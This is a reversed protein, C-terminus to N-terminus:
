KSALRLSQVVAAPQVAVPPPPQRWFRLAKGASTKPDLLYYLGTWLAYRALRLRSMPYGVSELKKRHFDWFERDRGKFVQWGLHWYYDHLNQHLQSKLEEKSLFKPGFEILQALLWPLVTQRRESMRTLSDEQVGQHTLIQHVFGFDHGEMIELCTEADAHLNSEDFFEDRSRVIDSRFLVSTPTGFVYPRGMLRYRAMDRGRVVPSPYPLGQWLVEDRRLGYAGVVGVSPNDEALRVMLELCEPLLLDDAAVVKCYKSEPSIQRFANNHNAIVRVFSRNTVVSRIRSDKAAYEQAIELTRDTSCNNVITYDWNSYTQALVSEICNRLFREGNYVPTVVSVLPESSSSMLAKERGPSERDVLPGANIIM